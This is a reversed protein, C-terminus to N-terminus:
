QFDTFPSAIHDVEHVPHVVWFPTRKVIIYLNLQSVETNYMERSLKELYSM